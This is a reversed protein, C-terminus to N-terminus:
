LFLEIEAARTKNTSVSRTDGVHAWIFLPTIDGGAFV